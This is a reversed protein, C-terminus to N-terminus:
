LKMDCGWFAVFELNCPLRATHRARKREWRFWWLHFFGFCCFHICKNTDVSRVCAYANVSVTASHRLVLQKCLIQTSGKLTRGGSRKGCVRFRSVRVFPVNPLHAYNVTACVSSTEYRGSFGIKNKNTTFSNPLNNTRRCQITWYKQWWNVGDVPVCWGNKPIIWMQNWISALNSTLQRETVYRLRICCCFM